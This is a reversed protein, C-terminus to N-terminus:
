SDGGGQLEKEVEDLEALIEATSRRDINAGTVKDKYDAFSVFNDKDMLPLQVVWQQFIRDDREQELAKTILACGTDADLQLIYDINHYRHLLL